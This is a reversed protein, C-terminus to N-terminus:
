DKIKFGQNLIHDIQDFQTPLLVHIVSTVELLPGLLNSGEVSSHVADIPIIVAISAVAAVSLIGVTLGIVAGVSRDVWGLLLLNLIKKVINALFWFIILTTVFIIAFAVIEDIGSDVPLFKASIEYYRGALIIGVIAGALTSIWKIIGNKWGLFGFGSIVILIILDIWNM